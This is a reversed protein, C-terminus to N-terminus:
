EFFTEVSRIVSPRSPLELSKVFNFGIVLKEALWSQPDDVFVSVRCSDFSGFDKLLALAGSEIEEYTLRSLSYGNFSFLGDYSVALPCLGRFHFSLVQRNLDTISRVRFVNSMVIEKVPIQWARSSQEVAIM